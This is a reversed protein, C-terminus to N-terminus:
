VPSCGRWQRCTRRAFDRAQLLGWWPAERRALRAFVLDLLEKALFRQPRAMLAIVGLVYRELKELLLLLPMLTPLLLYYAAKALELLGM